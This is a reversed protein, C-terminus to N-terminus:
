NDPLMKKPNLIGKPDFMSKIQKMLNVVQPSKSYYIHNRKKMGLGHEASISGKHDRIYEFVFPEILSKLEADDERKLTTVTLHLNNDGIHGYGCIRHASTSRLRERMVEVLDYYHEHELSVDYKYCFGDALLAEAIRERISWLKNVSSLDTSITGDSVITQEMLNELLSHLQSTIHDQDCDDSLSLEFLVYFPSTFPISLGLNTSVADVTLADMMEFASLYPSLTKRVTSMIQIIDNFRPVGLLTVMRTSPKIPCLISVRSIVGLTGESGIFLQKLDYGTNDKRLTSMMDLIQGNPLVAELGLISGHLSGYKIYRIGGLSFM